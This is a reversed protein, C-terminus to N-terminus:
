QDQTDRIAYGTEERVFRWAIKVAHVETGIPGIVLLEPVEPYRKHIHEVGAMVQEKTQGEFVHYWREIPLDPRSVIYISM